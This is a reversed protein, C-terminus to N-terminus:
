LSLLKPRPADLSPTSSTISKPVFVQAIYVLPLTTFASGSSAFSYIVFSKKGTM